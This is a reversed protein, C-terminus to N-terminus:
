RVLSRQIISHRTIMDGDATEFKGKGVRDGHIWSGEYTDGDIWEMIGKGHPIGMFTEGVYTGDDYELKDALAITSSLFFLIFLIQKITTKM